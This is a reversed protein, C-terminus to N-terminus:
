NTPQHQEKSKGSISHVTVDTDLGQQCTSQGHIIPYLTVQSADYKSSPSAGSASKGATLVMDIPALYYLGIRLCLTKHNESLRSVRSQHDM